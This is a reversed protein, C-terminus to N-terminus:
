MLFLKLYRSLSLPVWVTLVTLSIIGSLIMVFKILQIQQQKKFEETFHELLTHEYVRSSRAALHRIKSTM